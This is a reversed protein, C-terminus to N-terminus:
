ISYWRLLQLSGYVSGVLLIYGKKSCSLSNKPSLLDFTVISKIEKLENM